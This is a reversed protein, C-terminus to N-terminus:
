HQENPDVEVQYGFMGDALKSGCIIRCAVEVPCFSSGPADTPVNIKLALQSGVYLSVSTVIIFRKPSVGITEGAHEVNGIGVHFSIPLKVARMADPDYSFIPM